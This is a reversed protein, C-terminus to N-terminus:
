MFDSWSMGLCDMCVNGCSCEQEDRDLESDDEDHDIDTDDYDEPEIGHMSDIESKSFQAWYARTM